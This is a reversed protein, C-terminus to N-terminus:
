NKTSEKQQGSFLNMIDNILHLQLLVHFSFVSQFCLHNACGTGIFVDSVFVITMYSHWNRTGDGSIWFGSHTGNRPVRFRLPNWEQSGSVRLLHRKRSDQVGLPNQEPSGPTPETRPFGSGPVLETRPFGSGLTPETRPFRSDLTPQTRPFGSGTTFQTRWFGPHTRNWSDLVRLPNQEWSNQFGFYIEDRLVWFGSGM